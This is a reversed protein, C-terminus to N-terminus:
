ALGHADATAGAHRGAAVRAARVISAATSECVAIAAIRRNNRIAAVGLDFHIILPSRNGHWDCNAVTRGLGAAAGVAVRALEFFSGSNGFAHGVLM